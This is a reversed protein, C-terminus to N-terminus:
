GAQSIKMEKVFKKELAIEGELKAIRGSAIVKGLEENETLLMRCKAMLRKGTQSCCSCWVIDSVSLGTVIRDEVAYM